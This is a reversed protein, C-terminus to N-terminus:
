PGDGLAEAVAAAREGFMALANATTLREVEDVDIGKLKAVMAAVMPLDRPETWKERKGKFPQPYSDTELVIRDM